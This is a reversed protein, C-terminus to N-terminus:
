GGAWLGGGDPAGTRLPRVGDAASSPAAFYRCRILRCWAGCAPEACFWRHKCWRLRAPRGFCALDVLEVVPRDKTRAPCGCDRCWEVGVRAEIDIVLPGDPEDTAALVNVDPLGVLLECMRTPDTEM